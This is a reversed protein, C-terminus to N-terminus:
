ALRARRTGGDDPVSPRDSGEAGPRDLARRAAVLRRGAAAGADLDLPAPLGRRHRRRGGPPPRDLRHHPVVTPGRADRLDLDAVVEDPAVSRVAVVTEFQANPVPPPAYFSISGITAPLVLGNEPQPAVWYGLLQGAADLLEGPAPLAAVTGRVGDEALAGMRTVGQYAPGHFMWRQEYLATADIPCPREGTLATERLAPPPPYEAALLVTGRALAERTGDAAVGDITM